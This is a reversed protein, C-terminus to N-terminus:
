RELKEGRDRANWGERFSEHRRRWLREAIAECAAGLLVLVGVTILLAMIERWM